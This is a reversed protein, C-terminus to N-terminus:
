YDQYNKIRVAEESSVRDQLNRPESVLQNSREKDICYKKRGNRQVEIVM